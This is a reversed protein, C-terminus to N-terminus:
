LWKGRAGASKGAPRTAIRCRHAGAPLDCRYRRTGSWGLNLVAGPFMWPRQWNKARVLSRRRGRGRKFYKISNPLRKQLIFLYIFLGLKSPTSRQLHPSRCKKKPESFTKTKHARRDRSIQIMGNFFGLNLYIDNCTLLMHPGCSNIVHPTLPVYRVNPNKLPISGIIELKM